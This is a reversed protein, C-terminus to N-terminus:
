NGSGEMFDYPTVNEMGIMPDENMLRKEYTYGTENEEAPLHENSGGQISEQLKQSLTTNRRMDDAREIGMKLADEEGCLILFQKSRTIATYILNRRLMRYYSKVVPLIVISFESGQSKHVSCCFAHTIQSLDQRTYTVENGEFSIIVQDQKETNEKAYFIAVIEGIDGNFVNAEPQNVLQLVKDRIRYKVDGLVIEKRSGDPNPNFVEQLLVNLRDIGAPGRYMPALIQVNKAAYGKNKANRAVKEVVDAIQGANCRIFSRDPQPAALNAPLKGKKIDHALEIISSGEAQRYIDTLRVTPIRGSDLLDKLVQGPGVSPLQDEDGVMIVQINDPLAKFLQNALWTDVMSTEDIILIKGELPHDENQEFGEAGNWRLLRHITVAPLGTSEAMRKAARGTPAALLFPFPEEARYDKPDLSCGHLEAYLEVIGKIVTTKGTGPGGTLILMPSMLATQIAEKQTPAYQVGLRDELNGLALLFESEPFQDEYEQQDLIRKINSVLGKEAFYLSPSYVRKDEIIIKGEEGLKIVENSIEDFQINCSQSEELLKKVDKLLDSANIYVHGAQMSSTELMYLCAAKIRDPHSGTIGLQQGLEDARGFGIGEIDEVLRYPNSQIIEIALEKYVQYIKMSLQPGFGYENLRVMVQELGQHEMLTDYLDKAKDPSLKPIEELVSPNEMIRAIAREGLTEVIKEATKKGIGKFLESSLYNVIGQKSQPIDKRFHSAQFQAGFKPHEKLEGFFIYTEQEHVRPFYGTIVAEKDEYSENTEEVRIRLVTYLNSENHFITVLHKGKMFKGQESFLDLSDQRQM